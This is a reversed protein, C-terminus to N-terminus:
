DIFKFYQAEIDDIGIGYVSMVIWISIDLVGLEITCGGGREFARGGLCMESVYVDWGADWGDM